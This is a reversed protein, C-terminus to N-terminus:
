RVMYSTINKDQIIYSLLLTHLRYKNEESDKSLVGLLVSRKSRIHKIM